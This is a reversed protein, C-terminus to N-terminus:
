EDERPKNTRLQQELLKVQLRLQKDHLPQIKRWENFGYFALILGGVCIFVSANKYLKKDESALEIFRVVIEKRVKKDETLVKTSELRAKEEYLNAFKQNAVDNAYIVTAFGFMILLLGFMACFKYISDTPLPIRDQMKQGKLYFWRQFVRVGQREEVNHLCGLM